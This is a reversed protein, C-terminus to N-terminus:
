DGRGVSFSGEALLTAAQGIRYLSVRYAGPQWRPSEYWVYNWRRNVAFPLYRLHLLAGTDQAIWRALVGADGEPEVGGDLCAHIRGADPRFNARPEVPANQGDVATAFVLTAPQPQVAPMTAGMALDAISAALLGTKGGHRFLAEPIGLLQEAKQALLAPPLASLVAQRDNATLRGYLGVAEAGSLRDVVSVLEQDSSARIRALLEAAAPSPPPGTQPAAPPAVRPRSPPPTASPMAWRIVALAGLLVVAIVLTRELLRRRPSM